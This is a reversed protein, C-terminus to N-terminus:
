CAIYSMNGMNRLLGRMEMLTITSMITSNAGEITLLIEDIHKAETQLLQHIQQELPSMPAIPTAVTIDRVEAGILTVIDNPKTVIHAGDKILQNPGMGTPTHIPHPVTCIDRGIDLAANATILSGSKEGAEVVFTARTLAAIIRNREPFTYRTAQMGPPYESIIAGGSTIISQALRLHQRPSVTADDIGSGLVAITHGQQNLTKQHAASDIGYALGSIITVGSQVLQPIMQDIILRGYSSMKRTGVVALSTTYRELSGRVFLCLPPDYLDRLQSPYTSDEITITHIREKELTKEAAGANFTNRWTVFAEAADPKWSAQCLEKTTAALIRDASGFFGLASRVRYRTLGPFYALQVAAPLM